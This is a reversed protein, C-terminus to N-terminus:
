FGIEKRQTSVLRAWKEKGGDGSGWSCDTQGERERIRSKCKDRDSHQDEHGNKARQGGSFGDESGQKRELSCPSGRGM